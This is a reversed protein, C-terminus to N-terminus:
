QPTTQACFGNVCLNTTDCCNAATTCKEQPGSCNNPPTVSSCVLAGGDGAECYGNCCQDGTECSTGDAQCPDLVWFGRSNGALIEQAPLYFAPHSPDTGAPANLDIAAVWLKKVTAQGLDRTDYSPPWSQWPVATLQNGYLRRSTFVVWAYGGAVVPLVTPEYNLTTDDYNAEDPGPSYQPDPANFDSGHDNAGIPLYGKGNLTALAVPNPAGSLSLWWLESRAGNRTVMVSDGGPRVQTEFLLGGNGPLFVPYGVRQGSAPTAVTQPNSFTQTTADYNATIIPGHINNTSGTADVYAVMKDDPSYTPYGAAVGSPLGNLTGLAPMVTPSTMPPPEAPIFNWFSSTATGAASNTIAPNSSSPDISNTLAYSGDGTLAAWGFTGQTTIQVSSAQVNATQSLDYLYSQGDGPSGQESQTLLWRGKSSVVHCVRCGSDDNASPEGVVLTPAVDGSRVGLIAAGIPNGAADRNQGWNFVLQTGYSNYYVTGTLRAPAVTWTETIPGYAMGNKAVVLSVTLQDGPGSATNTASDWVDQPIPSRIFAGGTQQLIAPRGFTGTWSFSGTTTTLSIQIADADNTTWSWMLLPALMGRPWITKDYPYLFALNQSAGSMPSGLATLTPQDTVAGGLGEGGVGGVGGGASLQSTMTPVQSSENASPGNQSSTLKVLVQRTTSMTGESATVTVLGGTTGTPTFTAASTPTSPPTLVNGKDVTWSANVPAGNLTATFAAPPMTQGATVTITQLATPTVVFGQQNQGGVGITISGGGAGGLGGSSGSGSSSSTSTTFGTTGTSAGSSSKGKSSGCAAVAAATTLALALVPGWRYFLVAM